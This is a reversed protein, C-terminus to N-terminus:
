RSSQSSSSRSHPMAGASTITVMTSFPSSSQDKPSPRAWNRVPSSQALPPGQALVVKEEPERPSDAALGIPERHGHEREDGGPTECKDIREIDVRNQAPLDLLDFREEPVREHQCDHSNREPAEGGDHWVAAHDRGCRRTAARAGSEEEARAKNHPSPRCLFEHKGQARARRRNRRGTVSQSIASAPSGGPCRLRCGSRGRARASECEFPRLLEVSAREGRLAIRPTRNDGTPMRM